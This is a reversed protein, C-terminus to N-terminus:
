CSPSAVGRRCRRYRCAPSCVGSTPPLDRLLLTPARRRTACDPLRLVKLAPKQGARVAKAAAVRKNPLLPKLRWYSVTRRNIRDYLTQLMREIRSIEYERSSPPSRYCLALTPRTQLLRAPKRAPYTATIATSM